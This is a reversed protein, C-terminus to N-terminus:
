TLVQARDKFLIYRQPPAFPIVAYEVNWHWKLLLKRVFSFKKDYNVHAIYKGAIDGETFITGM